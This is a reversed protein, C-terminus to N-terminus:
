TSHYTNVVIHDSASYTAPLYWTCELAVVKSLTKYSSKARRVCFEFRRFLLGSLILFFFPFFSRLGDRSRKRWWRRGVRRQEQAAATTAAFFAKQRQLCRQWNHTIFVINGRAKARSFWILIVDNYFINSM